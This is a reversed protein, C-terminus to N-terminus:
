EKASACLGSQKNKSVYVHSKAASEKNEEVAMGLNGKM